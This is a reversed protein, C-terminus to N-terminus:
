HLNRTAWLILRAFLAWGSGTSPAVIRLSPYAM